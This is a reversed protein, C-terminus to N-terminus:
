ITTKYLSTVAILYLMINFYFDHYKIKLDVQVIICNHKKKEFHLISVTM